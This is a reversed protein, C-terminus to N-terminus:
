WSSWSIYLEICCSAGRVLKEWSKEKGFDYTTSIHIFLLRIKKTTSLLTVFLSNYFM